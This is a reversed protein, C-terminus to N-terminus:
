RVIRLFYPPIDFLYAVCNFLLDCKDCVKCRGHNCDADIKLESGCKPCDDPMQKM